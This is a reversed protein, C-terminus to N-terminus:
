VAPHFVLDDITLGSDDVIQRLARSLARRARAQELCTQHPHLWAGRGPLVHGRDVVAAGDQNVVRVLERQDAVSRCGVCTRLRPRASKSM